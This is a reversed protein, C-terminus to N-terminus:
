SLSIEDPDNETPVLQWDREPHFTDAIKAIPTKLYKGSATALVTGDNLMVEATGEFIKRFNQTVRGVAKLPQNLPTPKRYKIALEVTIGWVDPETIMIARCIVEDLIAGIMGGHMREPYSQHEERANFLAALEGNELEYFSAKMGFSNELGCVLCMRSNNQKKTVKYKM